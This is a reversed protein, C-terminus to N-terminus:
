RKLYIVKNNKSNSSFNSTTVGVWGMYGMTLPVNLLYVITNQNNNNKKGASPIVV